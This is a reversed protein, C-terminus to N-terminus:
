IENIATIVKAEMVEGSLEQEISDLRYHVEYSKEMKQPNPIYEPIAAGAEQKTSYFGLEEPDLDYYDFWYEDGNEDEFVLSVMGEYANVSKYKLIMPNDEKVPKNANEVETTEPKNDTKEVLTDKEPKDNSKESPANGCSLLFLLALLTTLTKM